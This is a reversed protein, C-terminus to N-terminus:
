LALRNLCHWALGGTSFLNHGVPIEIDTLQFKRGLEEVADRFRHEKGDEALQLLPLMLAQYDPIAVNGLEGVGSAGV